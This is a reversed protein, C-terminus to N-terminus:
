ANSISRRTAGLITADELRTGDDTRTSAALETDARLELRGRAETSAKRVHEPIRQDTDGLIRIRDLRSDAPTSLPVKRVAKGHDLKAWYGREPTPIKHRDCTKKLSSSTVGYEVAVKTM